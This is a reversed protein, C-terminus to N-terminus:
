SSKGAAKAGDFSDEASPEKGGGTEFYLRACAPRAVLNLGAFTIGIENIILLM